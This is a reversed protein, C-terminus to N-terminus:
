SYANAATLVPLWGSVLSYSKLNFVKNPKTMRNIKPRDRINSVLVPRLHTAILDVSPGVPPIVGGLTTQRCQKLVSLVSATCTVKFAMNNVTGVALRKLQTLDQFPSAQEAATQDCAIESSVFGGICNVATFRTVRRPNQSPIATPDTAMPINGQAFGNDKGPLCCGM